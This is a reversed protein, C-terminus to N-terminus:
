ENPQIQIRDLPSIAGLAGREVVHTQVYRDVPFYSNGFSANAPRSLDLDGVRLSLCEMARLGSGYPLSAPLKTEGSCQDLLKRVEDKNLVVPVRKKPKARTIDDM